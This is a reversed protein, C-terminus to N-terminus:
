CSSSGLFVYLLLAVTQPIEEVMVMALQTLEVLTASLGKSLKTFMDM